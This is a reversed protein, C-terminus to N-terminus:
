GAGHQSQHGLKRVRDDHAGPIWADQALTICYHIHPRHIVMGGVSVVVVHLLKDVGEVAVVGDLEGRGTQDVLVEKSHGWWVPRSM